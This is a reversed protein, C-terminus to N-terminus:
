YNLTVRDYIIVFEVNGAAKTGFSVTGMSDIDWHKITSAVLSFNVLSGLVQESGYFPIMTELDYTPNNGVVGIAYMRIGGTYGSVGIEADAINPLLGYADYVNSDLKTMVYNLDEQLMQMIETGVADDFKVTNEGSPLVFRHAAAFPKFVDLNDAVKPQVTFTISVSDSLTEGTFSVRNGVAVGGIDAEDVNAIVQM